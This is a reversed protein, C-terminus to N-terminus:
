IAVWRESPRGPGKGKDTQPRALGCEALSALAPEIEEARRNRGFLDRIETRTLGDPSKRLERLIEDAIPNGLSDGFIWRASQEAYKWAALAARLHVEKIMNSSDLLAYISALRMVQAEARSTVAGLLGPSGASLEPYIERWLKAAKETRLLEDTSRAFKVAEAVRSKVDQLDSEDVNGGEPLSKSRRACIWLIRNAFGNGMETATLYRRLEDATIHGILSIHANTAQAPSNKNLIRLAGNDWSQRIIASLTNGERDLIRLVSAFEPELVLLRKDEVGFDTTM